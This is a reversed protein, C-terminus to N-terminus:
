WWGFDYTHIPGQKLLKAEACQFGSHKNEFDESTVASYSSPFRTYYLAKFLANRANRM